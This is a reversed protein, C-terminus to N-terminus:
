LELIIEKKGKLVKGIYIFEPYHDPQKKTYDRAYERAQKRTQSTFIPQGKLVIWHKIEKNKM